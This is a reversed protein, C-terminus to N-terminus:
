FRSAQRHRNGATGGVFVKAPSITGAPTMMMPLIRDFREAALIVAQYGALNTQSSLVDMKQALTTRPIMELSVASVAAGALERILEKESFPDLFSVHLCGKRLNGINERTPRRVRAVVDAERSAEAPNTVITAGAQVYEDDPHGSSVGLSSELLVEFGLGVLRQASIPTMAVRTEGEAVEKPIFLKM